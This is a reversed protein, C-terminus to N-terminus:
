KSFVYPRVLSITNNWTTPNTSFASINSYVIQHILLTQLYIGFPYDSYTFRHLVSLAIALLYWLPLWFLYISSPCVFCHGFSFHCVIIYLVRCLFSCNSYCSFVYKASHPWISIFYFRYLKGWIINLINNICALRRIQVWLGHILQLHILKLALNVISTQTHGM